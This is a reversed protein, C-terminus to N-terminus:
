DGTNGAQLRFEEVRRILDRPAGAAILATLAKHAFHVRAAHERYYHAIADPHRETGALVAREHDDRCDGCDTHPCPRAAPAVHAACPVSSTCGCTLNGDNL